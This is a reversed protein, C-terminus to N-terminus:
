HVSVPIFSRAYTTNANLKDASASANAQTEPLSSAVAAVNVTFLVASVASPLQLASSQESRSAMM